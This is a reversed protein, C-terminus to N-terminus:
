LAQLFNATFLFRKQGLPNRKDDHMEFVLYSEGNSIESKIEKVLGDFRFEQDFWDKFYTEWLGKTDSFMYSLVGLKSEKNKTNVLYLGQCATGCGATFYVYGNDLWHPNGSKYDAVFFYQESKSDQEEIAMTFQSALYDYYHNHLGPHFPMKYIRVIHQKDPSVEQYSLERSSKKIREEIASERALIEDEKFVKTWEFDYVMERFYWGVYISTLSVLMLLVIWQVRRKPMFNM